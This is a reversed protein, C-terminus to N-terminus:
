WNRLYAKRVAGITIGANVIPQLLTNNTSIFIRKGRAAKTTRWGARNKMRKAIAPINKPTGHPVVIIVDPNAAVVAEDSIRAYGSSGKLGATILRGGARQILNGGWSNPLFAQTANGVGLVLLVKPRRKIGQTALQVQREQSRALKNAAARKGLVAGIQRTAAPVATVSRPETVVVRAGLRKMASHGRTWAKASFILKPNLTAVQEMNPGSPHSLPLLRVGKLTSSFLNKDGLAQGVAIPKVGISAMTNAAFPTLAITRPAAHAPAAFLTATAALALTFSIRRLNFM